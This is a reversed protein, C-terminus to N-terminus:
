VFAPQFPPLPLRGVALPVEPEADSRGPAEPLRGPCVADDFGEVDAVTRGEVSM